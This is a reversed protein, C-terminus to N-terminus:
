FDSSKSAKNNKRYKDPHKKTAIFNRKVGTKRNKCVEKSKQLCNRNFMNALIAVFM